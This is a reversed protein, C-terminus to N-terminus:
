NEPETSSNRPTIDREVRPENTNALEHTKQRNAQDAIFNNLDATSGLFVANQVSIKGPETQEDTGDGKAVRNRVIESKTKSLNLLTQNAEIANKVMGALVEFARPSEGEEAIESITDIIDNSKTILKRLNSRAFQYDDEPADETPTSTCEMAVPLKKEEEPKEESPIPPIGLAQSISKNSKETM